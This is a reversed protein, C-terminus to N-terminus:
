STFLCAIHDYAIRVDEVPECLARAVILPSVTITPNAFVWNCRQRSKELYMMVRENEGLLALVIKIELPTLRKVIDAIRESSEVLAELDFTGGVEIMDPDDLSIPFMESRRHTYISKYLATSVANTISSRCIIKLEDMSKDPYKAICRAVALWSEGELDEPDIMWHGRVGKRGAVWHVFRVLDKYLESAEEEHM